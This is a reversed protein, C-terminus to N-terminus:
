GDRRSAGRRGTGSAGIAIVGAAAAALLVGFPMLSWPSAGGTRALPDAGSGAASGGGSGSGSGQGGSDGPPNANGGGSDSAGSDSAGSDSSGSDSSGSDGGGTARVVVRLEVTPSALEEAAEMDLVPMGEADFHVRRVFMDRGVTYDGFGADTKAHFVHVINGDEDESWMGHGTGLQWEGEFLGSKLLPYNLKQWSAPDLLNAGSTPAVALGTTYTYGVQSGAYTMLLKGDRTLVNPGEACSNDWAYEPTVIRVPDSTLRTPQVPDLTAIYTSCNSQWAYYSQGAADQFYTMDLSIQNAAPVDTNLNTVGDARLIWEPTSWNAPEAPDLDNGAEDQQLQMISARGTIYDPNSGYCPMFLISLKGGIVHFEPAWFCGTMAKGQADLDGKKLLHIEGAHPDSPDPQAVDALETLTDGIRIPMFANGYQDVHRENLDNTAIMLYKTQGNWDYKFASPDAREVAFPKPYKTQKVTGKATYTGPKSTDVGSLDWESIPLAATSGDSYELTVRQPLAGRDISGGRDLNVDSFEQYGTNVIRGLRNELRHAVAGPVTLTTGAAFDEIVLDTTRNSGTARGSASEGGAGGGTGAVAAAFDTFVQHRGAGSDTTWSVVYADSSADYVATPFNVGGAEDLTLLGLERYDLLDTTTALLVQSTQTGDTGGGRKVRTSVVGYGEDGRLQFVAPNKLSRTYTNPNPGTMPVPESTKPFFVGYNENLPTWAEPSLLLNGPDGQVALHMSLAVDANNAEFESTPMRHYGAIDRAEHAPLVRVSFTKKVTTGPASARSVEVTVRADAAGGGDLVLAGDRLSAGGTASVPTVVIGKPAAPLETGSRLLPPIVYREAALAALEEASASTPLVRITTKREATLGRFAYNATLEVDVPQAGAEPQTVTGDTDVVSPESSTWTVRGGATPLAVYDGDVDGEPVAIGDVKQQAFARLETEHLLADDESIGRVEDADMARDYVRFTAIEGKFLPDPWPSKGITNMTQDAIDKPELTTTTEAVLEGDFYLRLKDSAGDITATISTWRDFDINGSTSAIAEASGNRIDARPPFVEDDRLGVFFYHAQDNEAGINWLFNHLHKMSPDIKVETTVTAADAGTLLDNPLRVWNGPGGKAGGTLVLSDGTWQADSHNQVRAPGANGGKNPVTAGTTQTFEYNAILGNVAEPKETVTVAVEIPFRTADKAVGKVTVTQGAEAFASAPLQEWITGVEKTAGSKMRLTVKTPLEPTVGAMTEATLPEFSEVELDGAYAAMLAEHEAKTVPLITGHRPMGGDSNAPFNAKPMEDGIVKWESADMINTTAMPVYHNPGDHYSPQDAFLYYQYGNVDGPNAKFLSPGEGGTFTGGYGNDSGNGIETGMQSWGSSAGVTSSYNKVGAGGVTALLDSSQEQRLSMTNEDKYVRVYADGVKQVTVDISGSGDQGRRDVDIWVQPESFSIFDDTTVYMMRNYNPRTRETTNQKDYLNSAWYVVYTGLEDDWYAEPAWTNGAFPTNVVAHRQATWNVLNTSEWIEIGLSGNVQATMFSGARGDIKLDTALMYFKDGDHSRIIFPDRLGQEGLSSSFLPEGENLTYWDLANNGKSAALSIKEGGVGEGTFYAWVYAEPDGADAPKPTVTLSFDRTATASGNTVTARLAISGASAGSAPRTVVVRRTADNVGDELTALEVGSVIEWGISSGRSGKSPLSFNGRIDDANEIALDAADQQALADNPPIIEAESLARPTITLNDILGSFYEGAGWNAKGIQLKGGAQGVIGTLTEGTTNTSVLVRNVYLKATAGDIVLDVHKWGIRNGTATINGELNRVGTNNYREVTIASETDLVGLYTERQFVQAAAERPAFVTWGQNGAEPKSDYSLTVADLGQLVPSGDTKALDLWFGSGLRAATGQGAQGEVLKATGRVTARVDGSTFVGDVPAEDFTFNAVTDAPAEAHAAPIAIGLTLASAAVIAGLRRLRGHRSRRKPRAPDHM